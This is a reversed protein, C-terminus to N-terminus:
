LVVAVDAVKFFSSLVEVASQNEVLALPVLVLVITRMKRPRTPLM